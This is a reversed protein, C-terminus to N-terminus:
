PWKVIGKLWLIWYFFGIITAALVAVALIVIILEITEKRKKEAAVEAERRAVRADKQFKVWDGWLGPRGAYIMWQKLEDEQEKIRELAMFEEFDTTQHAARKKNVKRQLDEKANTIEGIKNAYSSLERGNNIANKIVAFAANAAALEALM